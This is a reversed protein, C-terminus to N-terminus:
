RVVVKRVESTGEYNLKLIYLGAPLRSANYEDGSVNMLKRGGLDFVEVSVLTGNDVLDEVGALEPDIIPLSTDFFFRWGYGSIKSQNVLLKPTNRAMDYITVYGDPNNLGNGDADTVEFCYIQDKELEVVEDHLATGGTFPGLEKVVEGKSDKIYFRNSEPSEDTKISVWIRPSTPQAYYDFTGNLGEFLGEKGNIEVCNVTYTNDLLEAKTMDLPLNFSEKGNPLISGEWPIRTANGNVTVEFVVSTIEEASKNTMDFEIFDFAYSSPMAIKYPTFSVNMPVNIGVFTPEVSTSNLVDDKDATVFAVFEIKLPDVDVDGIKEPLDYVYQKTFYNGKFCDSLEDGWTPTLFDRLMHNHIYNDPDKAGKQYYKIGSQTMAVSLFAKGSNTLNSTCYGEIDVIVKRTDLDCRVEMWLNVPALEQFITNVNGEWFANQSVISNQFKHRNMLASPFSVVPGFQNYIATGAESMFDPRPPTYPGAHISITHIRGPNNKTLKQIAEAGEPCNNCNVGTFEEFLVDKSQPESSVNYAMASLGLGALAVVFAKRLSLNFSM